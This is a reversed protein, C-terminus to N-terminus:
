LNTINWFSLAIKTILLIVLIFGGMKTVCDLFTLVNRKFVTTNLSAEYNIVIIANKLDDEVNGSSVQKSNFFTYTKQDFNFINDRALVSNQEITMSKLTPSNLSLRYWSLLSEEIITNSDYNEQEYRQDNVITLLYPWKDSELLDRPDKCNKNSLDSSCTLLEIRLSQTNDTNFNGYFNILDLDDICFM